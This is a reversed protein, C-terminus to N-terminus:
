NKFQLVVAKERLLSPSKGSVELRGSIGEYVFGPHSLDASQSIAAALFGVADYGEAAYVKPLYGYRKVFKDKFDGNAPRPYLGYARAFRKPDKALKVAEDLHQTTMLLPYFAFKQLEAAFSNLAGYDTLCFVLDPRERSFRLAAARLTDLYGGYDFQRHSTIRIGRQKATAEIMNAHLLGFPVNPVILGISGVKHQDLFEEFAARTAAISLGNTFVYRNALAEDSFIEVPNTPTITLIKYRKALPFVAEATFDWTGVIAGQIHNVEVLKTYASSAQAASTGDDEVFLQIKQGKAQAEEVALRAGDLWNKGQEAAPGTLSAVAGLSISDEAWVVSASLCLWLVLVRLWLKM